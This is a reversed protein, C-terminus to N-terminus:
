VVCYINTIQLGELLDCISGQSSKSVAVVIGDNRGISAGYVSQVPLNEVIDKNKKLDTVLFGMVDIGRSKLIKSIRTGYQGAGYIFIKNYQRCFEMLEEGEEERELQEVTFIPISQNLKRLAMRLLYSTNTSQLAAYEENMVIGSYYGQAQAVYTLIREIAHNVTGNKEMPEEPFDEYRWHKELLPMLSCTRCWFATGFFLASKEMTLNAHIELEDMLKSVNEFNVYNWGNGNYLTLMGGYNPIPPGLLGLKENVEFCHIVNLIYNESKLINDWLNEFFSKGELEYQKYSSKKDHIFCFYDYDKLLDRCAVLLASIDRGRNDKNIIRCNELKSNEIRETVEKQLEINSVCIYVDIFGPITRIYNFCIDLLDVYFLNIVVAVKASIEQKQLCKKESLVYDLHLAYYLDLINNNELLDEWLYSPDFTTYQSIYKLTKRANGTTGIRLNERVMSRKPLFPLGQSVLEYSLAGSYDEEQKLALGKIEYISRYVKYTAGGRLLKELIQKGEALDADELLAWTRESNSLVFFTPEPINIEEGTVMKLKYGWENLGYIDVFADDKDIFAFFDDLPWIPGFLQDSLFIIEENNHKINEWGEGGDSIDLIGDVLENWIRHDKHLADPIIAYIAQSYKRISSIMYRLGGNVKHTRGDIYLLTARRKTM